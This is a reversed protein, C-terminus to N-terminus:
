FAFNRMGGDVHVIQGTIYSSVDSALFLAVAAVDMPQGFRGVPVMKRAYADAIEQTAYIRSLQESWIRGPAVANFTIGFAGLERSMGKQWAHLAAKAANAANVSTEVGEAERLYMPMSKPESSGSISIIRGFGRDIMGPVFQRVLRRVAHFNVAFAEEWAEESAEWGVPRSGGASHVVIDVRGLQALSATAVDDTNRLLSLDSALCYVDVPYKSQLNAAIDELQYKRRAVLILSSGASAFLEACSKGIGASAGTILTVRGALSLNLM